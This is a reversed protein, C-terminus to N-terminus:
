LDVPADYYDGHDHDIHDEVLESASNISGDIGHSSSGKMANELREMGHQAEMCDPNLSLARHFYTLAETFNRSKLYLDALKSQLVVQRDYVRSMAPSTSNIGTQGGDEIGQKLLEECTDYDNEALHLDVLALLPRLSMPDLTLAKRLAKKAREKGGNDRGNNSSPPSAKSLALGVLTLARSDRPAFSMAEKATCIAEKYRKASLCSEVLGEYSAIDRKIENSRFFCTGAIDPRGQALLISGKLRHCFAHAHDSSGSARSSSLGIHKSKECSIGKDVFALAKDSEGCADHYLALAAWAEARTDDVQLLEGTLRGLESLNCQKSLISAYTDMGELFNYDLTRIKEFTSEAARANDLSPNKSQLLAMELLIHMSSPYAAHLKKWQALANAQHSTTSRNSYFYATVIDAIPLSISPQSGLSSSSSSSSSQEQNEKEALMQEKLEKQQKKKINENVVRMVESREVNLLVLKEIAEMAYINRSLADLFARKAENKRGNTLYCNGLEMSMGFTRLPSSKPVASELISAAETFNNLKAHCRAEKLKVNAESATQVQLINHISMSTSMNHKSLMPRLSRFQHQARKYFTIARTLQNQHATCDGLIEYISAKETLTTVISSASANNNNMAELLEGDDDRLNSLHYTSVMECSRYQKARLLSVCENYLQSFNHNTNGNNSSATNGNSSNQNNMSSKLSAGAPQSKKGTGTGTQKCDVKDLAATLDKSPTSLNQDLPTHVNSNVKVNVSMSRTGTSTNEKSSPHSLPKNSSSMRQASKPVNSSM